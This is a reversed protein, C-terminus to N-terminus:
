TFFSKISTQKHKEPSRKRKKSAAQKVPKTESKKVLALVKEYCNISCCHKNGRSDVVNNRKFLQDIKLYKQNCGRWCLKELFTYVKSAGLEKILSESLSSKEKLTAEEPIITCPFELLGALLGKEPRRVM